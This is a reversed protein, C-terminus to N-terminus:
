VSLEMQDVSQNKAMVDAFRPGRSWFATSVVSGGVYRMEKRVCGCRVFMSLLRYAGSNTKDRVQRTTQPTETLVKVINFQSITMEDHNKPQRNVFDKVEDQATMRKLIEDEMQPTISHALPHFPKSLVAARQPETLM